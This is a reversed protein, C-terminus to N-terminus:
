HKERQSLPNRERLERMKQAFYGPHARHYKRMRKTFFEPDQKIQRARYKATYKRWLKRKYEIRFDTEPRGKIATYKSISM